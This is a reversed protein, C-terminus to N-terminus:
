YAASLMFLDPLFFATNKEHRWQLVIHRIKTIDKNSEHVPIGAAM